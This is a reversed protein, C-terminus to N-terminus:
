LQSATFSLASSEAVAPKDTLDTKRARRRPRSRLPKDDAEETELKFDSAPPLDSAESKLKHGPVRTLDDQVDEKAEVQESTGTATQKTPGGSKRKRGHADRNQERCKRDLELRFAKALLEREKPGALAYKLMFPRLAPTSEWRRLFSPNRRNEVTSNFRSDRGM